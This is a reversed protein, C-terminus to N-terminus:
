KKDKEQIRAKLRSLSQPKIGLFSALQYQPVRQILDPRKENLKLYRLEPSYNKFDDFDIQQRTILEESFVRCMKEFKPFKEFIGEEMEPNSITIISDETTAISYESPKASKVCAPTIGEMETYFATTKEEGDIVYYTRICGSLVFYGNQSKDGAKLLVTGKEVTRFIDLSVIAAKEEENLQIYKTIFDFLLEQM